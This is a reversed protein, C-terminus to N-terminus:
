QAEEEHTNSLDENSPTDQNVEADTLRPTDDAAVAEATQGAPKKKKAAAIIADPVFALLLMLVVAAIAVYTGPPHAIYDSVYGLLPISFQPVGKVNEFRVPKQDPIDNADGKTYFCRNAADVQVVRHTAVVLKENAVFTIPDGVKVTYPDVAKVYLLDGVSYTPEMSGSIVNYVEFGLLRSGMLFVAALVFIVVIVTTAIDWIRKGVSVKQRIQKGCAPCVGETAAGQAGCHPCKINNM